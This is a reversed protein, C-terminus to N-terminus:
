GETNAELWTECLRYFAYDQTFWQRLNRKAKESLPPAEDYNNAHLRSAPEDSPKELQAIKLFRDYDEDFREQRIIWMPPRVELLNGQLFFWNVLNQGTHRISIMAQTAATGRDSPDFLAEALDNAHPFDRFAVKEFDSWPVDYVPQGKRKRSYFGSYFRSIPDRISFFYPADRPIDKLYVDHKHVVIKDSHQKALRKIQSGAAKGIHLFHFADARDSKDQKSRKITKFISM